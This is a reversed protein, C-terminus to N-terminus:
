NQTKHSQLSLVYRSVQLIGGLSEPRRLAGGSFNCVPEAQQWVAGVVQSLSSQIAEAQPKQIELDFLETM